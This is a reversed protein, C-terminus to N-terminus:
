PSSYFQQIVGAPDRRSTTIIESQGKACASTFKINCKGCLLCLYMGFCIGISIFVWGAIDISPNNGSSNKSSTLYCLNNNEDLYLMNYNGIPYDIKAESMSDNLTNVNIYVLMDCVDTKNEINYQNITYINYCNYYCTKFCDYKCIKRSCSPCGGRKTECTKKQKAVIIVNLIKILIVL